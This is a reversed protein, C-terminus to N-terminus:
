EALRSYQSNFYLLPRGGFAEAHEVEGLLIAHDGIDFHSLLRCEFWALMGALLPVGSKAPHWAIGNFPADCLTAFRASIERHGESLVNIGFHTGARLSPLVSCKLGICISIIPPALSVSAFSNVTMGHPTGAADQTSVVAVGTAFKACARRFSDASIVASSPVTSVTASSLGTFGIRDHLKGSYPM